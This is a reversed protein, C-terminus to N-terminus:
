LCHISSWAITASHPGGHPIVVLPVISTENPIYLLGEYPGGVGRDFDVLQWSFNLLKLRVEVASSNDLRTWIIM